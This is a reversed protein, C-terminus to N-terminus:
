LFRLEAQTPLDSEGEPAVMEILSVLPKHILFSQYTSPSQIAENETIALSATLEELDRTIFNSIKYTTFVFVAALLPVLFNQPVM